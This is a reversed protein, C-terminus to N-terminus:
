PSSEKRPTAFLAKFLQRNARSAFGTFTQAFAEKVRSKEVDLTGVLSGVALLTRRSDDCDAPLETAIDLLYAQQVCLDNFDGLNTQLKKLQGILQNTEKAPFLSAFFELLYRLKKCEIRLAHLMEDESNTLIRKGSKVIRRYRKFIRERALDIVPRGANPATASDSSPENLFREWDELIQSYKESNLGKIVAQLAKVRKQRLLEFLPEIDDRLFAPLMARYRQEDLLYVDLDRLENSLQGLDAFDATFQDTIDQPFVGSIQSLASRTRRIAVRFDHLFEPDIDQRVYTENTKIVGLLFRLIAKSAEDARMDPSLKLRVKASYDGPKKGATQLVKFYLDKSEITALGLDELRHIVRSEYKPYGRVPKVWLYTALASADPRSSLRLAECNLWLVTKQNRDLVRYSASKIKFEALKLLARMEVIPTLQAKLDGEPLDRVFVPQAGSELSHFVQRDDLRRLLLRDGHGFLALKKHYLRWDFTDYFVVNEAVATGAEVSLDGALQEILDPQDYGNPLYFKQAKLSQLMM